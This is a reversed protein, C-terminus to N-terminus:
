FDRGHQIRPTKKRMTWIRSHLVFRCSLWMKDFFTLFVFEWINNSIVACCLCMPYAHQITIKGTPGPTTTTSSWRYFHNELQHSPSTLVRGCCINDLSASIIPIAFSRLRQGKAFDDLIHGKANNGQFFTQQSGQMSCSFYRSFFTGVCKLLNWMVALDQSNTQKKWKLLAYLTSPNNRMLVLTLMTYRTIDQPENRHFETSLHQSGRNLRVAAMNGAARGPGVTSLAVAMVCPWLTGFNASVSSHGWPGVPGVTDTDQLMKRKPAIPLGQALKGGPWAGHVLCHRMPIYMNLFKSFAFPINKVFFNYKLFFICTFIGVYTYSHLYICTRSYM